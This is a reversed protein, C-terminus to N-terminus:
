NNIMEKKMKWEKYAKHYKAQYLQHESYTQSFNHEGNLEPKACMFLYNNKDYNLVADIGEISPMRIPGPPLGGYIYTNYPSDIKLYGYLVQTIGFDGFAFRATPDAQLRMNQRLRNIYLGAIIPKEYKKNTEEEVISALVSVEVPTLPIEAAQKLRKETWFVTNAAKMKDFLEESSVTWYVEYTNPIFLSIATQPNLGYKQLFVGDNLHNIIDLSDINVQKSIKAALQQKLRINNIKLKVPTQRQKTINNFFKGNSLGDVSYAGIKIHGDARFIKACIEFTLRNKIVGKQLMDEKLDAFTTNKDIYILENGQQVSFNDKVIVFYSLVFCTLVVFLLVIASIKLLKRLKM